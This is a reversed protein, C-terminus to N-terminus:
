SVRVSPSNRSKNRKSEKPTTSTVLQQTSIVSATQESDCKYLDISLSFKKTQFNYSAFIM